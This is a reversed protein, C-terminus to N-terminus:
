IKDNPLFSFTFVCRLTKVLQICLKTLGRPTTILIENIAFMISLYNRIFDQYIISFVHHLRFNCMIERLCLCSSFSFELCFSFKSHQTHSMIFLDADVAVICYYVLFDCSKEFFFGLKQFLLARNPPLQPHFLFMLCMKSHPAFHVSQWGAFMFIHIQAFSVIKGCIINFKKVSYLFPQEVALINWLFKYVCLCMKNNCCWNAYFRISSKNLIYRRVYENM